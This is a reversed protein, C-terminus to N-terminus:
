YTLYSKSLINYDRMGADFTRYLCDVSTFCNYRVEGDIFKYEYSIADGKKRMGCGNGYTIKTLKIQVLEMGVIKLYGTHFQKYRKIPKSYKYRYAWYIKNRDLM